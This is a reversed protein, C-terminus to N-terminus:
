EVGNLILGAAVAVSEVQVDVGVLGGVEAVRAAPTDRVVDGLVQRAVTRDDRRHKGVTDRERDAAGRTDSWFAGSPDDDMAIVSAANRAAVVRVVELDVVDDVPAIVSGGFRPVEDGQAGVM